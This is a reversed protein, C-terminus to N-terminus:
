RQVDVEAYGDDVLPYIPAAELPEARHKGDGDPISDEVLLQHVPKPPVLYGGVLALIATLLVTIAAEVPDLSPVLHVIIQAIAAGVTGGATAAGTVAGVTRKPTVTTSM